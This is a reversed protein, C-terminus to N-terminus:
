LGSTREEQRLSKSCARHETLLKRRENRQQEEERVVSM